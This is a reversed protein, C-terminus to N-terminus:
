CLFVWVNSYCIKFFCVSNNIIIWLTVSLDDRILFVSCRVSVCRDSPGLQRITALLDSLVQLKGSDAINLGGSSYSDPFLEM